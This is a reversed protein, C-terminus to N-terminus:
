SSAQSSAQSSGQSPSERSAPATASLSPKAKKGYKKVVRSADIADFIDGVRGIIKSPDDIGNSETSAGSDRVIGTKLAKTLDVALGSEVRRIDRKDNFKCSQGIM